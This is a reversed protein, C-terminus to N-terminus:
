VGEFQLTNIIHSSATFPGGADGGRGGARKGRMEVGWKANVWSFIESRGADHGWVDLQALSRVRLAALWRAVPAVSLLYSSSDSPQTNNLFM